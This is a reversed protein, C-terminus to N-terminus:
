VPSEVTVQHLPGDPRLLDSLASRIELGINQEADVSTVLHEGQPIQLVPFRESRAVNQDEKLRSSRSL